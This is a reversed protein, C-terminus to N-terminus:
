TDFWESNSKDILYGELDLVGIILRTHENEPVEVIMDLTIERGFELDFSETEVPNWIYGEGADLAAYVKIDQARARAFLCPPKDVFSTL